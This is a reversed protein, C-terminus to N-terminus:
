DLQSVSRIYLTHGTDQTTFYNMSYVESVESFHIHIMEWILQISSTPTLTDTARTIVMHLMHKLHMKFSKLMQKGWERMYTHKCIFASWWKQSKVPKDSHLLPRISTFYMTWRATRPIIQVRAWESHLLCDTYHASFTIISYITFVESSELIPRHSASLEVLYWLSVYQAYVLGDQGNCMVKLCDIVSQGAATLIQQCRSSCLISSARKSSENDLLYRNMWQRHVSCIVSWKKKKVCDLLRYSDVGLTITYIFLWCGRTTTM